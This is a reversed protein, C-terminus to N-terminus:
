EKSEATSAAFAMHAGNQSKTGAEIEAEPAQAARGGAPRNEGLSSFVGRVAERAEELTRLEEEKAVPNQAAQGRPFPITEAGGTLSPGMEMEPSYVPRSNNKRRFGSFWSVKGSSDQEEEKAKRAEFNAEAERRQQYLPEQPANGLGSSLAEAPGDRLRESQGNELKKGAGNENHGVGSSRGAWSSEHTESITEQHDAGTPIAMSNQENAPQQAGLDAEDDQNDPLARWVNGCKACRVTRGAPPIQAKIDYRTTCAPCEIIM